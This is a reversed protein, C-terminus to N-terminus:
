RNQTQMIMTEVFGLRFVSTCAVTGLIIELCKGEVRFNARPSIDDISQTESFVTAPSRRLEGYGNVTVSIKDNVGAASHTPINDCMFQTIHHAKDLLHQQRSSTRDLPGDPLILCTTLSWDFPVVDTIPPISYPTWAEQIPADIDHSFLHGDSDCATNRIPGVRPAWAPRDLRWISWVQDIYNYVMGTWMAMDPDPYWLIIEAFEPNQVLYAYAMEPDDAREITGARIPCQIQMPLGGSWYNLTRTEDWWWLVGDAECWAQNSMLGRGGDVYTRAFVSNPDGTETMLAMRKDTWVIVGQSIAGGGVIRSGGELQLEGSVNIDTPTWDEFDFRNSWRITLQHPETGFSDAGLLMLISGIIAGSVAHHPSNLLPTMRANSRDWKYVPEDIGARMGLVLDTEETWWWSPLITTIGSSPRPAGDSAAPLGVPTIDHLAYRTGTAITSGADYVAAVAHSVSGFVIQGEIVSPTIFISRYTDPGPLQLLAGGVGRMPKFLGITEMRGLHARINFGSRWYPETSLPPRDLNLGPQIDPM